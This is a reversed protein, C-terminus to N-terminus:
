NIGLISTVNVNSNLIKHIPYNEGFGLAVEKLIKEKREGKALLIIENANLLIPYTLTIRNTNMQPIWNKIVCKTSENLGETGPFLSATHGDDGIGLIVLDIVPFNNKDLPIETRLIKEYHLVCDEITLTDNIMSYSVTNIKNFFVKKINGYNSSSAKTSVNREDVMFFVFCEWNLKYNKLLTLIPLPTTGGSLAISIKKKNESLSKFKKFLFDASYPVFEEEKVRHQFYKNKM